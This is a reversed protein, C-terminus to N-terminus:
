VRKGALSAKVCQGQQPNVQEPSVDAGAGKLVPAGSGGSGGAGGVVTAVATELISWWYDM